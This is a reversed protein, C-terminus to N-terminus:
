VRLSLGKVDVIGVGEEKLYKILSFIDEECGPSIYIEIEGNAPNITRMSAMGDYSEIIWQLYCIENREVFLIYKSTQM